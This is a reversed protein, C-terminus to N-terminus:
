RAGFKKPTPTKRKRNISNVGASGHNTEATINTGSSGPRTRDQEDSLADAMLDDGQQEFGASRKGRSGTSPNESRQLSKKIEEIARQHAEADKNKVDIKNKVDRVSQQIEHLVSDCTQSWHKLSALINNVSTEPNIDRGITSEIYLTQASSNLKAKVLSAYVAEIVLDELERTTSIDLDQM